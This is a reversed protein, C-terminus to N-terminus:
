NNTFRSVNTYGSSLSGFGSAINMENKVSRCKTKFERNLVQRLQQYHQMKDDIGVVGLGDTPVSVQNRVQLFSESLMLWAATGKFLIDEPVKRWHLNTNPPMSNFESVAMKIARKIEKDKFQVSGLLINKEAKDRLIMRSLELIEELEEETANIESTAISM